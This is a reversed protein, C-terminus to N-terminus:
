EESFAKIIQGCEPCRRQHRDRNCVVCLSKHNCALLLVLRRRMQCLKCTGPIICIYIIINCEPIMRSPPPHLRMRFINLKLQLSVGVLLFSSTQFLGKLKRSKLIVKDMPLNDRPRLMEQVPQVTVQADETLFSPAVTADSPQEQQGFYADKAFSCNPYLLRHKEIADDGAEWDCLVGGCRYCKVRDSKGTYYCGADVLEDPQIIHCKPWLEFSKKRNKEIAFYNDM